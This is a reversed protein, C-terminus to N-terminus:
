ASPRREAGNGPKIWNAFHQYIRWEADPEISLEVEFGKFIPVAEETRQKM